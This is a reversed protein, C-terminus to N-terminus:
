NPSGKQVLEYWQGMIWSQGLKAGSWVYKWFRGGIQINERAGNDSVTFDKNYTLVDAQPWQQGTINVNIDGNQICDPVFGVVLGAEKGSSRLNSTLTFPMASGDADVGQEHNYFTGDSSIMRPYIFINQPYEACTRDMTDMTWSFDSLSVRAIRDCEESNASPYHFWVENFKNNYWAFSKYAQTSNINSFVYNLLTCQDQTNAQIQQVNGGSWMYFNNSEMWYAVNNVSVRAMPAIIGVSNDLLSISWVGANIDIKSFRYTQSPTFILNIGLVPVHSILADAGAVVDQFVQNLSSATWQTPDGQDSAFIQNPINQHGFTVLTNDSVFMYNIDTPANAILVPAASVSGDWTYVGSQGGPTMVVRDAFRDIIWNRPSVKGTASTRSTGYLGTGYLGVGYGVGYSVSTGGAALQKQYKTSAAGGGSVSSTATGATMIDFTNTSVNRILFELNIQAATVGGTTAAASMKVRDLNAQGHGAATVTILGTARVVANGGGSGSGSATGTVSLTVTNAGTTIIPHAGNIHAATLGNTDVAGALTYSDGALYKAANTDAVSIIGSGNTTTIPNNALTAYDTALSNAINNLTADIPTINTLTQGYLAYLYSNTGIVTTYLNAIVSGYLTRAIGKITNGNLFTLSLWGGIKQPIGRWFRIKDAFTYHPTSLPTRDTSPQVGPTIQLPILQANLTAM